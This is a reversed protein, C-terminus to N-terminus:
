EKKTRSKGLFLSFAVLLSLWALTIIIQGVTITPFDKWFLLRLILTHSLYILFSQEGIWLWIRMLIQPIPLKEWPLIMALLVSVLGFPVVSLRTFKLAFLPDLGGIIKIGATLSLWVWLGLFLAAGGIKRLPSSELGQNKEHALFMGAVFYAIWSFFWLYQDQDSVFTSTPSTFSYLGALQMSLASLLLLRPWSRLLLLLFPFLVYLQFILPVFYLHYDGSGYLIIQWFPTTQASTNWAPILLFLLYLGITWILYLPILKGIRKTFFELLSFNNKYKRTLAYGSLGVFVPVSFRGFQDIFVFKWAEPFVTYTEPPFSSLTHLVVVALIAAGKMLTVRQIDARTGTSVGNKQQKRM